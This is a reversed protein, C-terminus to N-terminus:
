PLYLSKILKLLLLVGTATKLKSKGWKRAYERSPIEVVKYKKKMFKIIMEQEIAFDQATIEAKEFKDKKIVRFSYLIDTFSTNFRRNLLMTLIDSGISRVLGNINLEMDSSGGTRRSAIVMDANEKMLASLLNPIDNTDHSGDADVLVILPHKAKKVGLIVGAGRGKGSDQYLRVKEKQAIKQTDDQSHGDVVIIDDTYKKVAKIISRLGDAENKAPIIISNQPIKTRM